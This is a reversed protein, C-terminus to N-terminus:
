PGDISVMQPYYTLTLWAWLFTMGVTAYKLTKVTRKPSKSKSVAIPALTTFLILFLTILKAM